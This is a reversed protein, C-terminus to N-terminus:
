PRGPRLAAGHFRVMHFHMRSPEVPHGCISCPVAGVSDALLQELSPETRRNGAGGARHGAREGKPGKRGPSPRGHTKSNFAGGRRKSM